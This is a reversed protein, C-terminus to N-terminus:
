KNIKLFRKKGSMDLIISVSQFNLATAEDVLKEAYMPNIEFYILGGTKLKSKALDMIRLYFKLPDNDPVFLALEPEFSAVNAHMASKESFAIYPPNSVIIDVEELDFVAPSFLDLMRFNVKLSNLEANQKSIKIAGDSVDIGTIESQILRKKLMLSICGSGCGVDLIKINGQNVNETAILDALEETEPRPILVDRSLKIRLGHFETEGLIYQIPENEALRNVHDRFFLLESETLRKEDSLVRKRSLSFHFDCILFFINEIEDEDYVTKLKRKFYPLLDSLLNSAVFM